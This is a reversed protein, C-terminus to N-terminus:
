MNTNKLIIENKIVEDIINIYSYGIELHVGIITINKLKIVIMERITKIASVDIKSVNTATKYLICLQMNSYQSYGGNRVKFVSYGHQNCKHIFNECNVEQLFVIDANIKILFHLINTHSDVETNINIFTHVNYSLLSISISNSYIIDTPLKNLSYKQYFIMIKFMQNKTGFKNMVFGDKPIVFLNPDINWNKWCLPNNEDIKLKDLITCTPLIIEETTLGYPNITTIQQKKIVGDIHYKKLFNNVNLGGYTNKAFDYSVYINGYWSVGNPHKELYEKEKEETIFGDFTKYILSGKKLICLDLGNKKIKKCQDYLSPVMICKGLRSDEIKKFHPCNIVKYFPLINEQQARQKFIKDYIESDKTVYVIKYTSGDSRTDGGIKINKTGCYIAINISLLIILIILLTFIFIFWM